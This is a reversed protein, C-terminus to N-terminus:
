CLTSSEKTGQTTMLGELFCSPACPPHLWQVRMRHLLRGREVSQIISRTLKLSYGEKPESVANSRYAKCCECWAYESSSIHVRCSLLPCGIDIKLIKFLLLNSCNPLMDANESLYLVTLCCLLFTWTKVWLLVRLCFDVTSIFHARLLSACCTCRSFELVWHIGDCTLPFVDSVSESWTKM